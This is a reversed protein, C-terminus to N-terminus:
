PFEHFPQTNLDNTFYFKVMKAVDHRAKAITKMELSPVTLAPISNNLQWMKYRKQVREVEDIRLFYAVDNYM